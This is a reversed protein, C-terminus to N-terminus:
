GVVITVKQDTLANGAADEVTVTVRNNKGNSSSDSLAAAAFGATSNDYHCSAEAETFDIDHSVGYEDSYSDSWTITAVGDSVRAVTPTAGSMATYSNVTPDTTGSDNLTMTIIAFPATQVVAALDTAMRCWNAATVDTLPNVADQGQYNRKDTHGGYVQHNATRYWAPLGTPTITM